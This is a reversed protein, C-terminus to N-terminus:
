CSRKAEGEDFPVGHGELVYGLGIGGDGIGHALLKRALAVGDLEDSRLVERRGGDHFGHAAHERVLVGLAIGALAVVAAALLDVEHLVERALAGALQEARVEGVHLGMAARVRVQARVLREDLQAVRHQAHAQGLAAMERVARRHVEAAAVVVEGAVAHVGLGLGDVVVLHLTDGLFHAGLEDHAARARIRADDVELAHGGDRALHIRVEHHVHGVDGAEHGCARMGAGNRMGVHHRGGAVLGQAARAAAEDQGIVLVDGLADVLGHEGARLAAREHVDDGALGHRESLDHLGGVLLVDVVHHLVRARQPLAHHVATQAEHGAAGVVM